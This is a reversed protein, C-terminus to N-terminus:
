GDANPDVQNISEVEPQDSFFTKAQDLQAQDNLICIFTLQQDKGTYQDRFINTKVGGTLLMKQMDEVMERVATWRPNIEAKIKAFPHFNLVLVTAQQSNYGGLYPEVLQGDDAKVKKALEEYKARVSDDSFDDPRRRQKKGGQKGGLALDPLLSYTLFLTATTLCFLNLKKMKM